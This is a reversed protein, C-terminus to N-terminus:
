LGTPFSRESSCIVPMNDLPRIGTGFTHAYRDKIDEVLPLNYKLSTPVLTGDRLFFVAVVLQPRYGQLMGNLVSYWVDPNSGAVAANFVHYQVPNAKNASNLRRELIDTFRDEERSVGTGFTFSDGLFLIRVVGPKFADAALEKERFGLRNRKYPREPQLAGAEFWPKPAWVRMSCEALILIFLLPILSYVVKRALPIDDKQASGRNDKLNPRRPSSQNGARGHKSM